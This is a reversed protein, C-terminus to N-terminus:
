MYFLSLILLGIYAIIFFTILKSPPSHTLILNRFEEDNSSMSKYKKIRKVANKRLIYMGYFAFFVNVILSLISCISSLQDWTSLPIGFMTGSTMRYYIIMGDPVTLVASLLLAIMGVGWVKNYLLFLSPSFLAPLSFSLKTGTVFQKCFVSVYNINKFYLLLDRVTVGDISDTIKMVFRGSEEAARRAADEQNEFVSQMNSPPLTQTVQHGCNPCNIDDSSLLAGCNPCTRLTEPEKESHAEKLPATWEFTDSHIEANACKGHEHYCSRHHPTGCEPCVAIDDKETLPKGCYPCNVNEYIFM